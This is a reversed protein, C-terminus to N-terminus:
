ICLIAMEYLKVYFLKNIEYNIKNLTETSSDCTLVERTPRQSGCVLLLCCYNADSRVVVYLQNSPRRIGFSELIM